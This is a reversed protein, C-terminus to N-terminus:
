PVAKSDTSPLKLADKALICQLNWLGEFFVSTFSEHMQHHRRMFTYCLQHCQHFMFSCDRGKLGENIIKSSVESTYYRDSQKLLTTKLQFIWENQLHLLQCPTLKQPIGALWSLGFAASPLGVSDVQSLHLSYCRDLLIAPNLHM